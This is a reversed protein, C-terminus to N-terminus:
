AAERREAGIQSRKLYDELDYAYITIPGTPSNRSAKLYYRDTVPLKTRRLVTKSSCGLKQAASEPSYRFDAPLITEVYSVPFKLASM